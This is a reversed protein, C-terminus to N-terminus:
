EEPTAIKVDLFGPDLHSCEFLAAGAIVKPICYQLQGMGQCYQDHPCTNNNCMPGPHIHVM